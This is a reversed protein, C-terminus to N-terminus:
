HHRIVGDGRIDPGALRPARGLVAAIQAAVSATTDVPVHPIAPPTFVGSSLFGDLDALKRRDRAARRAALRRTLEGTRCTTCTWCRRV